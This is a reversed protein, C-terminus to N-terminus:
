ELESVIKVPANKGDDMAGGSPVPKVDCMKKTEMLVVNFAVSLPNERIQRQTL